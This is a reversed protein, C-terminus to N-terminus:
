QVPLRQVEEREAEGFCMAEVLGANGVYAFLVTMTQISFALIVRRHLLERLRDPVNLRAVHDALYTTDVCSVSRLM